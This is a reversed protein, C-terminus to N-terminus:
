LIAQGIVAGLWGGAFGASFYYLAWRFAIPETLRDWNM